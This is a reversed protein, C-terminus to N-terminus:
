IGGFGGPLGAAQPGPLCSHQDRAGSSGIARGFTQWSARFFVQRGNVSVASFQSAISATSSGDMLRGGWGSNAGETRGSMWTAQQDHHSFWARPVRSGTAEAKSVRDRLTGINQIVALRKQDYLPKLRALAPALAFQQGARLGDTGSATPALSSRSPLLSGRARTLLAFQNPDYPVIMSAGDNGGFLSVCVLAKCDDATHAAAEGMAALSLALGSASGLGALAASRRLLERRSSNM